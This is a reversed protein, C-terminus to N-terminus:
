SHKETDREPTPIYADVADMLAYIKDVWKDDGRKIEPNSTNSQKYLQDLVFQIDDGPFDYPFYSV